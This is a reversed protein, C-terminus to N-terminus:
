RYGPEVGRRGAPAGVSFPPGNILDTIVAVAVDTAFGAKAADAVLASLRPRFWDHPAIDTMPNEAPGAATTNCANTTLETPNSGVVGHNFTM